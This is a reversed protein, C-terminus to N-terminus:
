WREERMAWERLLLEAVTGVALATWVSDVLALGTVTLWAGVYMPHKLYRYPGSTVRVFYHLLEPPRGAGRPNHWAAWVMLLVGVVAAVSGIDVRM